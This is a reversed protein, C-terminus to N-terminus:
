LHVTYQNFDLSENVVVTRHRRKGEVNVTCFYNGRTTELLKGDNFCITLRWVAKKPEEM